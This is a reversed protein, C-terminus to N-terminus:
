KPSEELGRDMKAQWGGASVWLLKCSSGGIGCAWGMQKGWNLTKGVRWLRKVGFGVGYSMRGGWFWRGGGGGVGGRLDVSRWDVVNRPM